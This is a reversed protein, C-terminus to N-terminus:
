VGGRRVGYTDELSSGLTGGGSSISGALKNEIRTILIDLERGGDRERTEVKTDGSNNYINVNVMNGGSSGAGALMDRTARQSTVVAPGRVFEPAGELMGVKGAPILGGHEFGGASQSKIQAVNQLGVALAAAGAAIGLAPGIVPIGALASYAANAAKYADISASVIAAAQGIKALKENESKALGSLSGFFTEAALFKGDLEKKNETIRQRAASAEAETTETQLRSQLEKQEASGLVTNQLIIDNRKKYSAAIAEEETQLSVVLADFEKKAASEKANGAAGGAGGKAGGAAGGASDAVAGVAFQGLVPGAAGSDAEKKVRTLEKAAAIQDDYSKIAADYEEGIGILADERSQDTIAKKDAYIKKNIDYAADRRGALADLEAKPDYSNGDFVNLTDAIERATIRAQTVMNQFEIYFAGAMQAAIDGAAEALFYFETAMQQVVMRVNTPLLVFARIIYDKVDEASYEMEQFAATAEDEM